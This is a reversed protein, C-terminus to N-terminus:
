PNATNPRRGHPACLLYAMRQLVDVTEEKCLIRRLGTIAILPIIYM